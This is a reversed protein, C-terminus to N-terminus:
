FSRSQPSMEEFKTYNAGGQSMSKSDNLMKISMLHVVCKILLMGELFCKFDKVELVYFSLIKIRINRFDLGLKNNM